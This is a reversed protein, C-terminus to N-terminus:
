QLCRLVAAPFYGMLIRWVTGRPKWCTPGGTMSGSSTEAIAPSSGTAVIMRSRSCMAIEFHLDRLDNSQSCTTSMLKCCETTQVAVLDVGVLLEDGDTDRIGDARDETGVGGGAGEGAGRELRLGTDTGRSRTDESGDDNDDREVAEGGGEEPDRARTEGGDDDVGDGIEDGRGALHEGEPAHGGELEDDPESRYEDGHERCDLVTDVGRDARRERQEEHADRVGAPVEEATDREVRLLGGDALHEYGEGLAGADQVRGYADLRGRRADDHVAELLTRQVRVDRQEVVREDVVDLRVHATPPVHALDAHAVTWPVVRARPRTAVLVGVVQLLRDQM